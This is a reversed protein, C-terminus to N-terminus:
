SSRTKSDLAKSADEVAAKLGRRKLPAATSAIERAQFEGCWYTQAVRHPQPYRHCIRSGGEQSGTFKCESCTTM